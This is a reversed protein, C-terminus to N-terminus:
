KSSSEKEEKDWDPYMKDLMDLILQKIPRRERDALKKIADHEKISVPFNIQKREM